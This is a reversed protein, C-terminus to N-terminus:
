NVAVVTLGTADALARHFNGRYQARRTQSGKLYVLWYGSLKVAFWQGGFHAALTDTIQTIEAVTPNKTITGINITQSSQNIEIM